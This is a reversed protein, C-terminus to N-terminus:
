ARDKPAASQIAAELENEDVPKSVFPAAGFEQVRNMTEPDKSGSVFVIASGYAGRILRATEIGDDVGLAIDMLVIDPHESAAVCLADQASAAAGVPEAGRDAIIDLLELAILAEDDVVLIRLPRGDDDRLQGPSQSPAEFSRM